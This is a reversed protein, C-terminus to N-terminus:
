NRWSSTSTQPSVNPQSSLLLSRINTGSRTRAGASATASYLAPAQTTMMTLVLDFRDIREIARNLHVVTTNASRYVGPGNLSRVYFNRSVIPFRRAWHYANSGSLRRANKLRIEDWHSLVRAILERVVLLNLLQPCIGGELANEKALFNFRMRQSFEVQRVCNSYKSPRSKSREWEPGDFMERSWCNSNHLGTGDDPVRCGNAVALACMSMGGSKSVHLFHVAEKERLQQRWRRMYEAVLSDLAEREEVGWAARSRAIRALELGAEACTGFRSTCARM